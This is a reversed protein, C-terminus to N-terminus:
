ETCNETSRKCDVCELTGGSFGLDECSVNKFDTGKDTSECEEGPEFIGNNCISGRVIVPLVIEQEAETLERLSALAALTDGAALQSRARSYLGPEQAVALSPTSATITLVLAAALVLLGALPRRTHLRRNMGTVQLQGLGFCALTRGEKGDESRSRRQFKAHNRRKTM